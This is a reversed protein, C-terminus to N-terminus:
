PTIPYTISPSGASTRSVDSGSFDFYNIQVRGDLTVRLRAIYGGTEAYYLNTRTLDPTYDSPILGVDSLVNSDSGHSILTTSAITVTNGIRELYLTGSSFDGSGSVDVTTSQYRPVLGHQSSTAVFDSDLKLLGFKTNTAAFDTNLKILGFDTASADYTANLAILGLDTSTADFDTSLSIFGKTSADADPIATWAPDTGDSKLYTGAAGIPLPNTVNSTDRHMIDGRTTLPDTLAAIWSLTGSGNTQLVQGSTGDVGLRYDPTSALGAVPRLSVYNSEGEEKLVLRTGTLIREIAAYAVTATCLVLTVLFINKKTM